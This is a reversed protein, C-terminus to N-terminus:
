PQVGPHCSRAFSPLADSELPAYLHVTRAGAEAQEIKRPLVQIAKRDGLFLDRCYGVEALTPPASRGTVALHAWLEGLWIEIELVVTLPSSHALRLRYWKSHSDNVTREAGPPLTEPALLALWREADGARGAARGVDRAADRGRPAARGQARRERAPYHAGMGVGAGVESTASTSEGDTASTSGMSRASLDAREIDSAASDRSIDHAQATTSDIHKPPPDSRMNHSGIAEGGRQQESRERARLYRRERSAEAGSRDCVGAVMGAVRHRNGVM